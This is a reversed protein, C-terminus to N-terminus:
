LPNVSFRVEVTQMSMEGALECLAIRLGPAAVLARQVISSAAASCSLGPRACLVARFASLQAVQVM